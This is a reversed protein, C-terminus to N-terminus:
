CHGNQEVYSIFAPPEPIPNKNILCIILMINLQDFTLIPMHVSLANLVSGEAPYVDPDADKDNREFHELCTM